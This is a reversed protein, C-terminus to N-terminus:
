TRVIFFLRFENILGEFWSLSKWGDKRPMELDLLLLDPISRQFIDWVRRGDCAIRVHFENDELLKKVVGAMKDDDEAYLVDVKKEM